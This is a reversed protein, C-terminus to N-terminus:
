DDDWPQGCAPTEAAPGSMAPPLATTPDLCAAALQGPTIGSATSLDAGRLDAGDFEAGALRANEFDVGRLDAGKFDARRLDADEFDAGALTAGEFDARRLDAEDFDLHALDLGKFESDRLDRGELHVLFRQVLAMEHLFAIVRGARDRDLIHLIAQTQARGIADITAESAGQPTELALASIRDIYSQFATEAAREAALRAQADNILVTAFGVVTPVALLAIWDWLTKGSFGMWLPRFVLWIAAALALVAVIAGWVTMM